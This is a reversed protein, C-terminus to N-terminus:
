FTLKLIIATLATNIIALGVGLIKLTKNEKELMVNRIDLVFNEYTLGTVIEESEKLLIEKARIITDKNYIIKNKADIALDLDKEIEKCTNLRQECVLLDTYTKIIAAKITDDTTLIVNKGYTLSSLMALIAFLILKNLLNQM